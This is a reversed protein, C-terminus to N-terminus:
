LLQQTGKVVSQVDNIDQLAASLSGQVLLNQMLYLDTGAGHLDSGFPFLLMVLPAPPPSSPSSLGELEHNDM